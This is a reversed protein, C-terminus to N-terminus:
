SVARCSHGHLMDCVSVVDGQLCTALGSLLIGTYTQLVCNCNSHLPVNLLVIQMALNSLQPCVPILCLLPTCIQLPPLCLRLMLCPALDAESGLWVRDM